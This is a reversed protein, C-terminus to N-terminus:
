MTLLFTMNTPHKADGMQFTDPPINMVFITYEFQTAQCASSWQVLLSSVEQAAQLFYKAQKTSKKALNQQIVVTPTRPVFLCVFV